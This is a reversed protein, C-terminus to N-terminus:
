DVRRVSPHNVDVISVFDPPEEPRIDRYQMPVDGFRYYGALIAQGLTDFPGFVEDQHVVVFKGPHDRLLRERERAYAAEERLWERPPDDPGPFAYPDKQDPKRDQNMPYELPLRAQGPRAPLTIFDITGRM